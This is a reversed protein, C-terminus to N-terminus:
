FALVNVLAPQTVLSSNLKPATIALPPLHLAGSAHAVLTWTIAERARPGVVLTRQQDGSVVFGPCEGMSLQLQQPTAGTNHM